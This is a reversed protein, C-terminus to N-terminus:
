RGKALLGEIHAELFGELETAAGFAGVKDRVLNDRREAVAELPDLYTSHSAVSRAMTKTLSPTPDELIRLQQESIVDPSFFYRTFSITPQPSLQEARQRLELRASSPSVLAVSAM